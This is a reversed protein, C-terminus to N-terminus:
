HDCPAKFYSVTDDEYNTVYVTGRAYDIALGTPETGTTIRDLVRLTRTDLVAVTGRMPNDPFTSDVVLAFDGGATLAIPGANPAASHPFLYTIPVFALLGGTAVDIVSVGGLGYVWAQKGGPAFAISSVPGSRSVSITRAVRQTATSLVWIEGSYSSGVWIDRGGPAAQATQPGAPLRVTKVLKNDSTRVVAVAQSTLLTVYAYEGSKTKAAVVDTAGLGVDVAGSLKLTGTNLVKLEKLDFTGIYAESDHRVLGIATQDHFGTGVQAVQRHTVLSLVSVSGDNAVYARSQRQSIVIDIPNSGVTVTGAPPPQCQQAALAPVAQALGAMVVVAAAVLIRKM